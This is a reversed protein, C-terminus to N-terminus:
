VMALQEAVAAIPVDFVQLAAVADLDIAGADALVPQIRAVLQRNGLMAVVPTIRRVIQAGHARRRVVVLRGFHDLLRQQLAGPEIQPAATRRRGATAFLMRAAEVDQVVALPLDFIGITGYLPQARMKPTTGESNVM